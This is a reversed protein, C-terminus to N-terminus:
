CGKKVGRIEDLYGEDIADTNTAVGDRKLVKIFTMIIIKMDEAFSVNNVYEVDYALRKDWSLYNRGNIQALGTLGPNVDHRHKEEETYAALYRPLLPRPGVWAMNGALINFLIEPLEDLSTSRLFQGLKTMRNEDPLLNGNEDRENTMTRFKYLKFIREKGTKSDIKGVREQTFLVPSGLKIRIMIAVIIYLWWFFLLFLIALIKGFIPKVINKYM